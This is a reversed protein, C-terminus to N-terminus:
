EGEKRTWGSGRFQIAPASWAREIKKRCKPCRKPEPEDSYIFREFRGCERCDYEYIPM